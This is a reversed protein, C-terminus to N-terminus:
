AAERAVRRLAARANKISRSCDSPTSSIFTPRNPAVTLTLRLHNGNTTEITGGGLADLDAQLDRQWRRM